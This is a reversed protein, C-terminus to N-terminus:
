IYKLITKAGEIKSSDIVIQDKHDIANVYQKSAAQRLEKM